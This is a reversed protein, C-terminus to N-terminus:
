GARKRRRLALLGLAGAAVMAVSGPEPVDMLSVDTLLSFPPQGDPTGVALFSLVESTSTATYIFEESMWGTFGEAANQKVGTSQTQSGLSVLWEESTAGQYGSQQAGAWDFTLAYHDGVTLGTITQQIPQVLFAGDAAIFNSSADPANGDWTNMGGNGAGWLSLFNYQGTAGTSTATDPLFIFNYGGPSSWGSSTCNYNLQCSSNTQNTSIAFDGNTVLQTGAFAPGAAFPLCIAVFRALRIM